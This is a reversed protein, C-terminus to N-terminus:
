NSDSLNFKILLPLHDSGVPDLTTASTIEVIGKSMVNDIPLGAYRALTTPFHRYIWSPGIGQFIELNGYNAFRRLLWTWTTSNFDGAILADSSLQSLAPELKNVQRPGSAPWPWRLHVAGITIKKGDLIINKLGLAAYDHCYENGEEMPWRSFIISGGINEWEPCHFSYRYNNKLSVARSQWEISYESLAVIDPNLKAILAFAKQPTSNSFLVNMYLLSYKGPTNSASALMASSNYFGLFVIAAAFAGILLRRQYILVLTFILLAFSLHARFNAGTDFFPHLQGLFGLAIGSMAIIALMLILKRM